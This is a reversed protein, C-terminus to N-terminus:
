VPAKALMKRLEKKQVKGLYTRPIQERSFNWVEKPIKIKGLGACAAHVEEPSFNRTGAQPVLCAVIREGTKEDPVGVVYAEAVGLRDVLVKEIESPYVNEGSVKIMDKKRDTMVLYEGKQIVMDGTKLWGDVTLSADTAEQNEWYGKMVQPGRVWLEGGDEPKSDPEPVIRVETDRVPIGLSGPLARGPPNISVIPSTESLGYGEIIECAFREEFAKKVNPSLPGSGSVCLRLFLLDYPKIRADHCIANFIDPIGPLLNIREKTLARLAEKSISKSVVEVGDVLTTKKDMFKPVMVVKAGRLVALVLCVSLGYVHFCPIASFIVSKENVVDGVLEMAQEANAVLNAHTLMAAKVNGTTGGTFQLVAVDRPGALDDFSWYNRDISYIDRWSFDCKPNRRAFYNKVRYRMSRYFDKVRYGVSLIMPLYSDLGVLMTRCKEPLQPIIERNHYDLDKLTILLNPDALKVMEALEKPTLLPNLAVMICGAKWIGWCAIDMQPCNPMLLMVRDGPRLGQHRLFNAFRTAEERLEAYTMTKGYFSVAQHKPFRNETEALLDNLTKTM